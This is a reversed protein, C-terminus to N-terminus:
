NRTSMLDFAKKRGGVEEGGEEQRFERVGACELFGVEDSLVGVRTAGGGVLDV